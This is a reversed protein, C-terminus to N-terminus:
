DMSACHTAFVHGKVSGGAFSASVDLAVWTPPTAADTAVVTVSVTAARSSPPLGLDGKFDFLTSRVGDRESLRTGASRAPVATVVLTYDPSRSGAAPCAPDGGLHAEAHLESGADGLQAGFQSRVLTRQQGGVDLVLSTERCAGDCAGVAAEEVGGDTVPLAGAESPAGVGGDSSSSCASVAVGAGVLAARVGSWASSM